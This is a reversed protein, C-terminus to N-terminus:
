NINNCLNILNFYNNFDVFFNKEIQVLLIADLDNLHKRNDIKMPGKRQARNPLENTIRFQLLILDIGHM